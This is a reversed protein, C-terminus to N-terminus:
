SHSVSERGHRPPLSRCHRKEPLFALRAPLGGDKKKGARFPCLLGEQRRPPLFRSARCREGERGPDAAESRLVVVDMEVCSRSVSARGVGRGRKVARSPCV